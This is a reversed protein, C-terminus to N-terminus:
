DYCKQDKPSAFRDTLEWMGMEWITFAEHRLLLERLGEWFCVRCSCRFYVSTGLTKLLCPLFSHTMALAMQRSCM